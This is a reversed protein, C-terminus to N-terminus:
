PVRVTELISDVMMDTDIEEAIAEYRLLIRHRLIEKAFVKIDDPTVFDRGQLLAHARALKLFALSARPSAGHLIFNKSESSSATQHRTERVIKVIYEKLKEDIYVKEIIDAIMTREKNKLVVDLKSQNTTGHQQLIAVEEEQSPYDVKLKILFRDMQAEPLQYTGEQDIPNQTAMVFFNSDLDFTKDGLSVQREEMCQLLASQVKAPARNVEDALLVGTFVPGKRIDFSSTKPNFITTGTLDAPLLDPTFQIRQFPADLVEALSKALMTKALGPMGEMLVHGRVFLSALLSDVPTALGTIKKKLQDRISQTKETVWQIKEEEIRSEEEM